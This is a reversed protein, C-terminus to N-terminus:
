IVTQFVVKKTNYDKVIGKRKGIRKKATELRKTMGLYFVQDKGFEDKDIIYPCYM